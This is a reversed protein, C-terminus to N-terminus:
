QSILPSHSAISFKASIPIIISLTSMDKSPHVRSIFMKLFYINFARKITNKGLWLLAKQLSKEFERYIYLKIFIDSALSSTIDM